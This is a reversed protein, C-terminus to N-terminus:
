NYAGNKGKMKIKEIYDNRLSYLIASIILTFILTIVPFIFLIIEGSVDILFLNLGIRILNAIIVHLVYVYVSLRDGVFRIGGALSLKPHKVGYLFLATSYFFLGICSFDIKTKLLMPMLTIVIGFLVAILIVWDKYKLGNKEISCVFYGTLFWPLARTLFNIKLFWEYNNTECIIVQLFQFVFLMPLMKMITEEKKKRIVILWLLYTQILAILYWLPTAFDIYCFVVCKILTLFTCHAMLWELLNGNKLCSLINYIAFLVIGYFLIKCIKKMRYKITDVTRGLAYYGSIMFFIPVAFQFLKSIVQGFCGPFTVHIFVVGMCGIGKFFSLMNNRNNSSNNTKDKPM